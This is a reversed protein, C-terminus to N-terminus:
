QGVCGVKGGSFSGVIEPQKSSYSDNLEACDYWVLPQATVKLEGSLREFRYKEDSAHQDVIFLDFSQKRHLQTIIFGRNFQGVIRMRLFDEKKLKADLLREPDCLSMDADKSTQDRLDEVDDDLNRQRKSRLLCRSQIKDLSCTMKMRLNFNSETCPAFTPQQIKASQLAAEATPPRAMVDQKTAVTEDNSVKSNEPILSMPASQYNRVKGNANSQCEHGSEDGNMQVPLPSEAPRRKSPDAKVFSFAYTAVARPSQREVIMDVPQRPVGTLSKQQSLTSGGTISTM